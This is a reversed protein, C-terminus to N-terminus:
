GAPDGLDIGCTTKAYAQVARGAEAIRVADAARARWAEQVAKGGDDNAQDLPGLLSRTTEVLVAVSPEVEAPSSAQLQELQALDQRVGVADLNGLSRDLNRVVPLQRCFAEPTREVKEQYLQYGSVGGIALTVALLGLVLARRVRGGTAAVEDDVDDDITATRPV